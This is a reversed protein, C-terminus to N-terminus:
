WINDSHMYIHVYQLLNHKGKYGPPVSTVNQFPIDSPWWVPKNSTWSLKLDKMIGRILAKMTLGNLISLKGPLPALMVTTTHSIDHDDDMWEPNLLVEDRHKEIVQTIRPDGLVYLGNTKNTSYVVAIQVGLVKLEDCKKAIQDLRRKIDRSSNNVQRSAM